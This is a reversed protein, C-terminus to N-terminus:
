DEQDEIGDLRKRWYSDDQREHHVAIIWVTDPFEVFVIWYPFKWVAELRFRGDVVVGTQPNHRIRAISDTVAQEFRDGLGHSKENYWLAAKRGQIHAKSHFRVPKM